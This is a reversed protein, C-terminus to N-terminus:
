DCCIHSRQVTGAQGIMAIEWGGGEGWGGRVGGAGGNDDEDVGGYPGCKDDSYEDNSEIQWAFWELNTKLM